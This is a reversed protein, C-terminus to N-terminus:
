RWSRGHTRDGRSVLWRALEIAAALSLAVGFSLAFSLLTSDEFASGGLYGIGAALSAWTVAGVTDLVVFRRLPFRTIGSALATASRLGPVYRGAVVLTSGHRDLLREARDLTRQGRDGRALPTWM